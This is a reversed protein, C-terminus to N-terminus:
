LIALASRSKSKHSDTSWYRGCAEYRRHLPQTPELFFRRSLTDKM